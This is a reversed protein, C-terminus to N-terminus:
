FIFLYGFADNKIMFAVREPTSVCIQVGPLLKDNEIDSNPEGIMAQCTIRMKDSGLKAFTNCIQLIITQVEIFYEFLISVHQALQKSPAMILAQCASNGRNIQQLVNICLATTKGTAYHSQVLVDGGFIFNSKNIELFCFTEFGVM